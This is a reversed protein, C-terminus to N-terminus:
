DLEASYTETGGLSVAGSGEDGGDRVSSGDEVGNEIM